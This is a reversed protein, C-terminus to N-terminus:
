SKSKEYIDPLSMANYKQRLDDYWARDYIEWFDKESYYVQAYLWKMGGLERLKSELAHNGWVFAEHKSPGYGWLGINLMPKQLNETTTDESTHPHFTSSPSQRLPCLWLPYIGFSKGTFEVFDAAASIPLALDQVVYPKAHRSAHLATFLMRTRLYKDLYWRTFRNIPTFFYQFASFGVWFGGRDYRFLYEDLPIYETISDHNNTIIKKVHLYFWPDKAYSFTQVANNVRENTLRGTIIAGQDKSYLIGGVYDYSDEAKTFQQISEVAAPISAVSHYTTEVYKKAEILQLEVLTTIGLTGCAGAAGHFLDARETKSATIMEGNALIM